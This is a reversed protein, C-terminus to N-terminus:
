IGASGPSGLRSAMSRSASPVPIESGDGTPFNTAKPLWMPPLGAGTGDPMKFGGMVNVFRVNEFPTGLVVDKLPWSQGNRQYAGFIDGAVAYFRDDEIEGFGASEGNLSRGILNKTPV